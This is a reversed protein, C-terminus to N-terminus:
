QGSLASEALDCDGVGGGWVTMLAMGAIRAV